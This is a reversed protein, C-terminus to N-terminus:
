VDVRLGDKLGALYARATAWEKGGGLRIVTRLASVLRYPIIVLRRGWGTHKRFFIVSSRAKHYYRMSSLSRTSGSVGHQVSSVPIYYLKYGATQIRLSLDMDEYYLYMNEDFLGVHQLVPTPVLMATGFIYDVPHCVDASSHRRPGVPGFDISELTLWHRKSGAFWLTQPKDRYSLPPTAIGVDPLIAVQEILEELLVPSVTADNNLLFVYDAYREIAYRMGMNAAAAFGLNRGNQILHIQPYASKVQVVTEDTSGNDVVVVQYSSYTLQQLASLCVATDEWNNWTLIIIYVLPDPEPKSIM